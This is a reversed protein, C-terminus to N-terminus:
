KKRSWAIFRMAAPNDRAAAVAASLRVSGASGAEHSNEANLLFPSSPIM